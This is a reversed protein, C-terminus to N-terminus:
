FDDNDNVQSISVTYNGTTVRTGALVVYASPDTTTFTWVYTASKASSDYSSRATNLVSNGFTLVLAAVDAPYTVNMFYCLRYRHGVTSNNLHFTSGDVPQTLTIANSMISTPGNVFFSGTPSTGVAKYFPINSAATETSLQKKYFTIDYSIWLEGLNVNAVSMGQTAVQFRGLTFSTRPAGNGTDTYLVRTPRESTACEIGHLLGLAPKTSCAYDSNEMEQKSAFASDYPDYDTAMIIAGLAQSSGNYESSTSVFEFVIGHPEWQDYLQAIQSLWPFTASATPNLEYTQNTFVTAGSVLNGAVIDGLYERETIRTGRPGDRAFKASSMRSLDGTLLSNGALRYDGHGFLKALQSGALAGLDGQNVFNGLTRGITAAADSKSMPRKVLSKELHDIKSELRQIPNKIELIEPAYDGRGRIKNKRVIKKSKPLQRKTQRLM